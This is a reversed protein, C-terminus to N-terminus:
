MRACYESRSLGYVVPIGPVVRGKLPTGENNGNVRESSREVARDFSACSYVVEDTKTRERANLPAALHWRGTRGLPRMNIKRAEVAKRLV